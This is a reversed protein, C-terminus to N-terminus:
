EWIFGVIVSDGDDILNGDKDFFRYVTASFFSDPMMGDFGLAKVEDSAISVESTDYWAGRYEVFRPSFQDEGTVYDFDSKAKDPLQDFSVLPRPHYNCKLEM